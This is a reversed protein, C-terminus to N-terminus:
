FSLKIDNEKAFDEWLSFRSKKHLKKRSKFERKLKLKIRTIEIHYIIQQESNSYCNIGKFFDPLPAIKSFNPNKVGSHKGKDICPETLYKYDERLDWHKNGVKKTLESREKRRDETWYLEVNKKYEESSRIIKMNKSKILKEEETHFWIPPKNGGETINYYMESEVANFKDIWYFERENMEEKSYCVELIENIFNEKKHKKIARLLLTGSGIYDDQHSAKHQGIYKKNNVTNTTLYIYGHQQKM